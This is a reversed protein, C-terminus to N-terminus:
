STQPKRALVWLHHEYDTDEYERLIRFGAQEVLVINHQADYSSWSMTSGIFAEEDAEMSQAGLTILLVGGPKLLEYINHLMDAHEERPLHFLAYLSLIGDYHEELELKSFDGQIFTAQPVHKKALQVHKESIDIGTVELENDVLYKDFPVGPGCGLDLVERGRLKKIFATLFAQETTTFAHNKRYKTYYDGEEYGHKVLDRM